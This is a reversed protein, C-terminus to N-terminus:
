DVTHRVIVENDLIVNTSWIFRADNDTDDFIDVFDTYASKNDVGIDDNTYVTANSWTSDNFDEAYWNDPLQWHLAYDQVDEELGETSCESTLRLTGDETACSLDRIPATYFTQAKWSDDTKAIIENNANTFVAVMGGDGPHYAHGQNNESGIGSNEEWDVLKMAVTFPKKAKFQVINSNFQTFPVNDKGVPVGNIYMEFYNDAFVYATIVEGDVDIEILNSPYLADRAATASAYQVGTCPNNLDHAFPFSSDMFNVTAPVTWVKGDTSKSQGIPANRGNECEYLSPINIIAEGHSVSATGKYATVTNEHIDSVPLKANSIITGVNDNSCASLTYTMATMVAITLGTKLLTINM